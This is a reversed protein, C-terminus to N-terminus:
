QTNKELFILIGIGILTISLVLSFMSIIQFFNQHFLSILLIELISGTALISLFKFKNLGMFFYSLLFVFGLITMAISYYGLFPAGELYKQSFFILLLERSFLFSILVGIGGL